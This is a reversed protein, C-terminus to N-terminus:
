SLVMGRRHHKQGNQDLVSCALEIKVVQKLWYKRERGVSVNVGFHPGSNDHKGWSPQIKLFFRLGLDCSPKFSYEDSGCVPVSPGYRFIESFNDISLPADFTYWPVFNRLSSNLEPHHHHPLSSSRDM